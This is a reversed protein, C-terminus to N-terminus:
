TDSVFDNFLAAFDIEGHAFPGMGYVEEPVVSASLDLIQEPLQGSPFTSAAVEPRPSARSQTIQLGTQVLALMSERTFKVETRTGASIEEEVRLLYSIFTAGRSAIGSQDDSTRLREILSQIKLRQESLSPQGSRVTELLQIALVIGAAVLAVTVNWLQFYVRPLGRDAVAIITDAARLCATRTPSFKSDTLSRVFFLRHIQYSRYALNLALLRQRTSDVTFLGFSLWQERDFQLEIPLGAVIEDLAKSAALVRDYTPDDGLGLHGYVDYICRASKHSAIRYQITLSGDCMPTSEDTMGPMDTTFQHPSFESSDSM